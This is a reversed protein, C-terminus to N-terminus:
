FEPVFEAPDEFALGEPFEDQRRVLLAEPSAIAGYNNGNIWVSSIRLLVNFSCDKWELDRVEEDSLRRKTGHEFFKTGSSRGSSDITM